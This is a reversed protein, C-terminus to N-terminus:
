DTQKGQVGEDGSVCFDSQSHVKSTKSLFVEPFISSAKQKDGNLYFMSVASMDIFGFFLFSIAVLEMVRLCGSLNVSYQKTTRSEAHM